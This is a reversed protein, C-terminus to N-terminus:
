SVLGNQQLSEYVEPNRELWAWEAHNLPIHNVLLFYIDEVYIPWLVNETPENENLEEPEDVEHFGIEKPGDNAQPAPDALNDMSQEPIQEGTTVGYLISGLVGYHHVRARDNQLEEPTRGELLAFLRKAYRALEAPQIATDDSTIDFQGEDTIKLFIKQVKSCRYTFKEWEIRNIIPTLESTTYATGYRCANREITDEDIDFDDDNSSSSLSFATIGTAALEQNITPLDLNQTAVLFAYEAERKVFSEPLFPKATGVPAKTHETIPRNFLTRYNLWGEEAPSLARKAHTRRPNTTMPPPIPGQPPPDRHVLHNRPPIACTKRPSFTFEPLPEPPEVETYRAWGDAHIILQLM